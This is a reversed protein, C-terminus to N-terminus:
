FTSHANGDYNSKLSKFIKGAFEDIEISMFTPVIILVAMAAIILIGDMIFGKYKYSLMSQSNICSSKPILTHYKRTVLIM